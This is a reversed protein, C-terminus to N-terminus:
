DNSVDMVIRQGTELSDKEMPGDSIDNTWFTSMKDFLEDM